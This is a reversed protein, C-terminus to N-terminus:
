NSAFVSYFHRKTVFTALLTVFLLQKKAGNNENRGGPFCSFKNQGALNNGMPQGHFWVIFYGFPNKEGKLGDIPL